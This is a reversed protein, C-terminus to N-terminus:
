RIVVDCYLLQGADAYFCHMIIKGDSSIIYKDTNSLRFASTQASAEHAGPTLLGAGFVLAFVMAITFVSRTVLTKLKM